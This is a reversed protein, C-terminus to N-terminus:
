TLTIGLSERYSEGLDCNGQWMTYAFAGDITAMEKMFPSRNDSIKNGKNM